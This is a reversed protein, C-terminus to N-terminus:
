NVIAVLASALVAGVAIMFLKGAEPVGGRATVKSADVEVSGCFLGKVYKQSKGSPLVDVRPIVLLVKEIAPVYRIRSVTVSGNPSVPLVVAVM